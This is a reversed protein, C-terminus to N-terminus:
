VLGEPCPNGEAHILQRIVCQRGEPRVESLSAPSGGLNKRNTRDHFVHHGPADHGIRM